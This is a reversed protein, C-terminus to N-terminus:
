SNKPEWRAKGDEAPTKQWAGKKDPQAQAPAKALLVALAQEKDLMADALFPHLLAQAPSLRQAPDPHTLLNMFEVYQTMAGYQGPAAAEEDAPKPKLAQGKLVGDGEAVAQLKGDGDRALTSRANKQAATVAASTQKPTGQGPVRSKQVEAGFAAVAPEADQGPSFQYNQDGDQEMMPFLMKGASFSDWASSVVKDGQARAQYEPPSTPDFVQAGLPLEGQELALGMDILVAEGTEENFKINDGKIDRHVVGLAEFHALGQLAGKMLHQISGLYQERSILEKKYRNGLDAFAQDMNKGKIQEMVLMPQAFDDESSSWDVSSSEASSADGTVPSTAASSVASSVASSAAASVPAAGIVHIGFCRAINPHEGVRAYVEAEHEM